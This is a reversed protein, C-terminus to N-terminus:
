MFPANQQAQYQQWAQQQLQRYVQRYADINTQKLWQLYRRMNEKDLSSKNSEPEKKKRFKDIIKKVMTAVKPAYQKLLAILRDPDKLLDTIRTQLRNALAQLTQMATGGLHSALSSFIEEVGAGRLAANTYTNRGRGCILSKGGGRSPHRTRVTGYPGTMLYEPHIRLRRTPFMDLGWGKNIATRVRDTRLSM